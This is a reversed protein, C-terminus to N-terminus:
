LTFFFNTFRDEIRSVSTNSSFRLLFINRGLFWSIVFPFEKMTITLLEPKVAAERYKLSGSSNSFVLVLYRVWTSNALFM